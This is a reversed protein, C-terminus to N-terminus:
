NNVADAFTKKKTVASIRFKLLKNPYFFGPGLDVPIYNQTYGTDGESLVELEKGLFKQRYQYSLIDSLAKLRKTRRSVVDTLIKEKFEYAPTGKRPSFPFIHTRLPLICKLVDMTNKFNKENESPFGVLVDTTISLIPIRKKLKEILEIYDQAKYRRSMLGLIRDDGSQLPIHLHPCLRKSTEMKQILRENIDGLEISSLRIRFEGDIKDLASIVGALDESRNKRGYKGLCIGCLVIEKFGNEVLGEAESVIDALSKSKIINRVLPVKCYSCFNNCGDQIKLFARTHGKFGVVASEFKSKDLIRADKFENRLKDKESRVLCGTIYIDAKPNERKAKRIFYRSNSDARHTVTCTNIIYLDAAVGNDLESLGKALYGQRIQESEYQNVKCGLTFIKFTRM